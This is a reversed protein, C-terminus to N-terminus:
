ENPGDDSEDVPPEKVQRNPKSKQIDEDEGGSYPPDSPKDKKRTEPMALDGEM